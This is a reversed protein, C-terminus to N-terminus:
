THTPRCYGCRKHQCEGNSCSAHLGLPHGNHCQCCRWMDARRQSRAYSQSRTPRAAASHYGRSMLSDDTDFSDPDFMNTESINRSSGPTPESPQEPSTHSAFKYQPSQWSTTPTAPAISHSLLLSHPPSMMSFPSCLASTDSATELTNVPSSWPSIPHSSVAMNAASPDGTPCPSFMSFATGLNASALADEYATNTSPPVSGRGHHYEMENIGFQMGDYGGDFAQSQFSPSALNTGFSQITAAQNSAFWLPSTLQLLTSSEMLQRFQLLKQIDAFAIASVNFTPLLGPFRFDYAQQRFQNM